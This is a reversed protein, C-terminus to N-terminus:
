AHGMGLKYGHLGATHPDHPGSVAVCSEVCTLLLLLLLLHLLEAAAVLHVCTVCQMHAPTSVSLVLLPAPVVEVIVNVVVAVGNVPSPPPRGPDQQAPSPQSISPLHM